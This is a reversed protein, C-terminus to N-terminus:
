FPITEDDDVAFYDIKLEDLIELLIELEDLINKDEQEAKNDRIKDRLSDVISALFWESVIDLLGFKEFAHGCELAEKEIKRKLDGPIDLITVTISEKRETDLIKQKM